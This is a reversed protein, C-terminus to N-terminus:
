NSSKNPGHLSPSLLNWISFAIEFVFLQLDEKYHINKGEIVVYFTGKDVIISLQADLTKIANRLKRLQRFNFKDDKINKNLWKPLTTETSNTYKEYFKNFNQNFDNNYMDKLDFMASDFIARAYFIYLELLASVAERDFNYDGNDTAFSWDIISEGIVAMRTLRLSTRAEQTKKVSFKEKACDYLIKFVFSPHGNGEVKKTVLVFM